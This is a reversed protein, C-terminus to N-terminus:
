QIEEPFLFGPYRFRVSRPTPVSTVVVTHGSDNIPSFVNGYYQVDITTGIKMGHQAPFFLTVSGRNLEYAGSLVKTPFGADITTNATYEVGAEQIEIGVISGFRNVKEIRAKAFRGRTDSITIPNGVEYGLAGDRVRVRSIVSYLEASLNIPPLLDGFETISSKISTIRENPLFDGRLTVPDIILDYIEYTGLNFKVVKSVIGRAGSVNGLVETNEFEYININRTTGKVRLSYPIVWKGDSAKLVVSFPYFFEITEKFLINFLIRYASETGKRSYIDKMRKIIFRNDAIESKPMSEGYMYFFKDILEEITEDVDVYKTINQLIEQAQQNQELFEYYAKLFQVFMPYESNVFEPVHQDILISLRDKIREFPNEAGNGEYLDYLNTDISTAKTTGTGSVYFEGFRDYFSLTEYIGKGGSNIDNLIAEERTVFVPYFLGTYVQRNKDPKTSGSIKIPGLPLTAYQRNNTM